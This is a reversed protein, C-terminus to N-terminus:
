PNCEGIKIFTEYNNHCKLCNTIVVAYVSGSPSKRNNQAQKYTQCSSQVVKIIYIVEMIQLRWHQKKLTVTRLTLVAIKTHCHNGWPEKDRERIM